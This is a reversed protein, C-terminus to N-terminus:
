KVALCGTWCAACCAAVRPQLAMSNTWDRRIRGFLTDPMDPEGAVCGTLLEIAEEVHDVPHIHFQGAEVAAIVEDSLNLQQANTGPLLIGQKGTLGHIQV